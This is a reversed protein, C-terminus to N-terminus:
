RLLWDDLNLDPTPDAPAASLEPTPERLRRWDRGIERDLIQEFQQTAIANFLNVQRKNNYFPEIGFFTEVTGPLVVHTHLQQAGGKTARDHTVYAYPPVDVDCAEYYETVIQETLEHLADRRLANPLLKMLEPDPSIVFTWALVHESQRKQCRQLIKGYDDGLGRDTWRRPKPKGRKHPVHDSRDNRYTFYRLKNRLHDRGGRKAKSASIYQMDSICIPRAKVLGRPM